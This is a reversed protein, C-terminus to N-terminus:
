AVDLRTQFAFRRAPVVHVGRRQLELGHMFAVAFGRDQRSCSAHQPMQALGRKVCDPLDNLGFSAFLRAHCVCPLRMAFAHCVCPLRMAVFTVLHELM